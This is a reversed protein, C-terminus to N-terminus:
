KVIVLCIQCIGASQYRQSFIDEAVRLQQRKITHAYRRTELNNGSGRMSDEECFSLLCFVNERLLSFLRVFLNQEASRLASYSDGSEGSSSM